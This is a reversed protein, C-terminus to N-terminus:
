QPRGTLISFSETPIRYGMFRVGLITAGYPKIKTRIKSVHSEVTTLADLIEDDGYVTNVIRSKDVVYPAHALLFGLIDRERRPFEVPLTVDPGRLLAQLRKIEAKQVALQERLSRVLLTQLDLDNM